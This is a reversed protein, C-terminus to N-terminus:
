CISRMAPACGCARTRPEKRPSRTGRRRSSFDRCVCPRKAVEGGRRVWARVTNRALGLERVIRRLSWGRRRLGLIGQVERENPMGDGLCPSCVGEGESNMGRGAGGFLADISRDGSPTLVNTAQCMNSGRGTATVAFSRAPSAAPSGVGLWHSSFWDHAVCPSGAAVQRSSPPEIGRTEGLRTRSRPAVTM